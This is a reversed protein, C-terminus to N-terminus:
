KNVERKYTDIYNMLWNWAEFERDGATKDLGIRLYNLESEIKDWTLMTLRSALIAAELVAFQARNFGQFPRHNKEHLIRFFLRPRIEDEELRVLELETHALPDALRFGPVRDAPLLPWNRQNTLCGAFIRVDDTQNIIAYGTRVINDLTKSPKFPMILRQDDLVHVGMPAIHTSGDMSQCTIINELIM